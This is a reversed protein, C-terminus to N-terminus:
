GNTPLATTRASPSSGGRSEDCTGLVQADVPEAVGAGARPDAVPRRDFTPVAPRPRSNIRNFFGTLRTEPLSLM